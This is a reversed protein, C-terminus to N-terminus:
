QPRHMRSLEGDDHARLGLPLQYLEHTGIAFRTQVLALLLRPQDRLTVTEIIEIGAVSRRKSAFWRQEHIWDRLTEDDLLQGVETPAPEAM